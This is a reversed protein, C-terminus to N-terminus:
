RRLLSLVLDAGDEASTRNTDIRIDYSWGDHDNISQLALGVWRGERGREREVLTEPPCDLGVYLPSLGTLVEHFVTQPHGGASVAVAIGGRATAAIGSIFAAHVHPARARWVLLRQDVRGLSPEDFVVWPVSDRMAIAEMLSSKGSGSPGNVVVIVPDHPTVDDPESLVLTIVVDEANELAVVHHERGAPDRLRCDIREGNRGIWLLHAEAIRKRAPDASRLADRVRAVSEEDERSM